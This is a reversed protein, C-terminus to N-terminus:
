EQEKKEKVANLAYVLSKVISSLVGVFSTVPANMTRVVMSLLQERGPLEALTQVRESSMAQGELYGQAIVFGKNKKSFEAMLKAVLVPDEKILGIGLVKKEKSTGSIEKIGADKLAIECLRNKLVMYKTGSQRMKKRLKDMDSAKINDISSLIFGKNESFVDKLEGIMLEKTKKGYKEVM